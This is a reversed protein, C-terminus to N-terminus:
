DDGPVEEFEWGNADGMKTSELFLYRLINLLSCRQEADYEKKDAVERHTATIDRRLSNFMSQSPVSELYNLDNGIGSIVKLQHSIWQRENIQSM